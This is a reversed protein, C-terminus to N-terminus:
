VMSDGADASRCLILGQDLLGEVAKGLVVRIEIRFPISWVNHKTTARLLKNRTLLLM